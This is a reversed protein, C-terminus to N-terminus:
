GAELEARDWKGLEAAAEYTSQFFAILTAAPDVAERVAAYPLVFEGLTRDFFAADPAVPWEAFGPPQPYAYSYFLGETDGNPWFGCSSVEHSYALTQVWDPCHPVGGPHTPARRGSFRTAALDLGGWFFHVPSAKGIFGSRFRFMVDHIRLLAHWFRQMAERDYSRHTEDASFPIAEEVEAPSPYISVTVGLDRLSTMTEDYFGAVSRPELKVDRRRGDSTRIALVHDVFDFEIEVGIPGAHMLSTTLGRASVYLTVQWWHNVMPMLAMRVKGVVQSWMHFTDRTDEWQSITLRPWADTTPTV